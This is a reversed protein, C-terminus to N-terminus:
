PRCRRPTLTAGAACSVMGLSCACRLCAERRSAGPDEDDLMTLRGGNRHIRAVTQLLTEASGPAGSGQHAVLIGVVACLGVAVLGAALSLQM